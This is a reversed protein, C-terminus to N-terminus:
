GMTEIANSPHLPYPSPNRWVKVDRLFIRQGIEMGAIDLELTKPIEESSCVVKVQPPWLFVPCAVPFCRM